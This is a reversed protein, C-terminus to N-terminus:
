IDWLCFSISCAATKYQVSFSVCGNTLLNFLHVYVYILNLFCVGSAFNVFM